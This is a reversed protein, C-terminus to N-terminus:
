RPLRVSGQYPGRYTLLAMDILTLATLTRGTRLGAPWNLTRGALMPPPSPVELDQLQWNPLSTIDM